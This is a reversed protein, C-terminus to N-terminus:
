KFTFSCKQLLCSILSHRQRLVIFCYYCYYHSCASSSFRYCCTTRISCFSLCTAAVNPSNVFLEVFKSENIQSYEHRSETNVQFLSSSLKFWQIRLVVHTTEVFNAPFIVHIIICIICFNPEIEPWHQQYM